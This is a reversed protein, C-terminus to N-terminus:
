LGEERGYHERMADRDDLANQREDPTLAPNLLTASLIQGSEHFDIRVDAHFSPADWLWVGLLRNVTEVTPQPALLGAERLARAVHDAGTASITGEDARSTEWILRAAERETPTQEAMTCRSVAAGYLAGPTRVVRPWAVEATNAREQPPTPTM